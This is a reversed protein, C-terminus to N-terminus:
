RRIREKYPKGKVGMMVKFIQALIMLIALFAAALLIPSSVAIALGAYIGWALVGGLALGLAILRLADKLELNLLYSIIVPLWWGIFITAAVIVGASGLRWLRSSDGGHALPIYRSRLRGLYSGMRGHEGLRRLINLATFALALDIMVVLICSAYSPLGIREGYLIAVPFGGVLSLIIFAAWRSRLTGGLVLGAILSAAALAKPHHASLEKLASYVFPM